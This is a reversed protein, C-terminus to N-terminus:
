QSHTIGIRECTMTEDTGSSGSTVPWMLTMIGYGVYRLIKAYRTAMWLERFGSSNIALMKSPQTLFSLRHAPSAHVGPNNAVHDLRVPVNLNEDGVPQIPPDQTEHAPMMHLRRRILDNRVCNASVSRFDSFASQRVSGRPCM